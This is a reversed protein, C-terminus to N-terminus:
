AYETRKRPANAKPDRSIHKAGLPKSLDITGGDFADDAVLCELDRL